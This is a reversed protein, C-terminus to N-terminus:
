AREIFHWTLPQLGEDYRVSRVVPSPLPAVGDDPVFLNVTGDENWIWTIIAARHRAGEDIYHVMRGPTLGELKTPAFVVTEIKASETTEEAEIKKKAM